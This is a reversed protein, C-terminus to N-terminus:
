PERNMRIWYKGIREGYAWDKAAARMKTIEFSRDQVRTLETQLLAATEVVATEDGNREVPRQLETVIQDRLKKERLERKATRVKLRDRAASRLKRKFAALLTQPNCTESRGVAADLEKQLGEGLQRMVDTFPADDLLDVPLAWRGQGVKPAHYNALSLSMMSHDTLSGMPCIKWDAVAQTLSSRTYIRDIRSRAGTALQLYTYDRATPNARRWTDRMNWRGILRLLAEVLLANDSRSPLRDIADETVNFDGCLVDPRLAARGETLEGLKDWFAANEDPRNPAYVNLIKIAKTATWPVSILSARGPVIEECVPQGHSLIKNSVVFAVGEAGGPNRPNSSAIITLQAAFLNKLTSLREEDLHAEQVALIALRHDKMIQNIALWKDSVGSARARGFGRVNLTALRLRCRTGLTCSSPQNAQLLPATGGSSGDGYLAGGDIPQLSIPAADM